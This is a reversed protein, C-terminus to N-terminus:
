GLQGFSLFVTAGSITCASGNCINATVGFSITFSSSFPDNSITVRGVGFAADLANQVAQRRADGSGSSPFPGSSISGITLGGPTM